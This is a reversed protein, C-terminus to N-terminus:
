LVTGGYGAQFAVLRSPIPNEDRPVYGLKVNGITFIELARRDYPNGPEQKIILEDGDKLSSIVTEGEYYVFGAVYFKTLFYRKRNEEARVKKPLFLAFFGVSLRQLFSLRNM